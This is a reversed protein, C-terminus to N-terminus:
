SLAIKQKRFVVPRGVTTPGLRMALFVFRIGPRFASGLNMM